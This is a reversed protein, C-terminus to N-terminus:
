GERFVAAMARPLPLTFRMRARTRPHDFHLETACLMLEGTPKLKAYLPDNLIPHGRESLHVRIQHKKGTELTVRLLSYHSTTRITKFHTIAEEGSDGRRTSHVTGDVHEVLRTKITGEGPKPTGEVIAMYIRKVSHHLFQEKLARFADHNKSFVLLGAADRDLRHIVGVRARPDQKAVRDRLIAIATPRKEHPVTSTLLGAPKNIVILDEDEHVIELHPVRPLRM